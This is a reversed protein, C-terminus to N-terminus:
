NQSNSKLYALFYPIVEPIVVTPTVATVLLRVIDIYNYLVLLLYLIYKLIIILFKKYVFDLCLIYIDFM